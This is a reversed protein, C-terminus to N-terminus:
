HYDELDIDTAEEGNWGFTVRYNRNVKVAYRRPNGHLAHFYFGAANMDQPMKADALMTLIRLCKATFDPKVRASRGTEFLERLGKHRFSGVM